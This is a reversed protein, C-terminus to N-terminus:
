AVGLTSLREAEEVEATTMFDNMDRYISTNKDEKSTYYFEGEDVIKKINGYLNNKSSEPDLNDALVRKVEQMGLDIGIENNKLDMALGSEWKKGLTKISVRIAGKLENLYGVFRTAKEGIALTLLACGYIHRFAKKRTYHELPFLESATKEATQQVESVVDPTLQKTIWGGITNIISESILEKRIIKKLENKTIKM